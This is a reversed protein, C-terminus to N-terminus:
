IFHQKDPSLTVFTQELLLCPLGHDSQKKLILRFRPRQQIDLDKKCAVLTYLISSSHRKIDLKGPLAKLVCTSMAFSASRNLM